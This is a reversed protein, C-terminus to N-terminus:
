KDIYCHIEAGEPSAFSFGLRTWSREAIQGTIKGPPLVKDYLSLLADRDSVLVRVAHGTSPKDADRQELHISFGGSSLTAHTSMSPEDADSFMLMLGFGRWFGISEGMDGTPLVPANEVFM